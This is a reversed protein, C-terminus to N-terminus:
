RVLNYRWRRAAEEADVLTEAKGYCSEKWVERIKRGNHRLIKTGEQATVVGLSRFACAPAASKSTASSHCLSPAQIVAVPEGLCFHLFM